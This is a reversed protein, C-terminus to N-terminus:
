ASLGLRWGGRCWPGIITGKLLALVVVFVRAQVWRSARVSDHCVHLRLRLGVVGDRQAIVAEIGVGGPGVGPVIGVIGVM